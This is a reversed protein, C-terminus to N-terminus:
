KAARSARLSAKYARKKEQYAELAVVSDVDGLTPHKPAVEDWGPPKIGFRKGVIAILSRAKM